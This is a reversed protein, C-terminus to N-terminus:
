PHEVALTPDLWLSLSNAYLSRGIGLFCDHPDFAVVPAATPSLAVCSGNSDIKHMMTDSWGAFYPPRRPFETGNKRYGWTDYFRGHYMSMPTVAPYMATHVALKEIVVPEWILDSEVYVLPEDPELERVAATLAVNCVAALQRWRMPIDQSPYYPGGHEAKLVTYGTPQLRDWTDDTSDGEVVVVKRPGLRDIQEQFRDLYSSADRMVTAVIM